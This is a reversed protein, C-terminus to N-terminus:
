DNGKALVFHPCTKMRTRTQLLNSCGFPTEMATSPKLVPRRFILRPLFVSVPERETDVDSKDFSMSKVAFTQFITFVSEARYSEVSHVCVIGRYDVM